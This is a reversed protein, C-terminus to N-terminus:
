KKIVENKFFHDILFKKYTKKIYSSNNIKLFADNFLKDLKKNKGIIIWDNYNIIKNNILISYINDNNYISLFNNFKDLRCKILIDYNINSINKLMNAKYLSYVQFWGNTKGRKISKSSSFKVKTSFFHLISKYKKKIKDQKEVLLRKVNKMKSYIQIINTDVYKRRYLGRRISLKNWTHIYIDYKKLNNVLNINNLSKKETLGTFLLAIKINEIKLDYIELKIIKNYDDLILILLDNYNKIQIFFEINYLKNKIMNINIFKILQVPKHTKFFIKDNINLNNSSKLKFSIKYINKKFKWGIWCYSRKKNILKHLIYNNKNIHFNFWTKTKPKYLRYKPKHFIFNNNM